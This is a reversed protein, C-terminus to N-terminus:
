AAEQSSRRRSLGRQMAVCALEGDKSDNIPYLAACGIIAGDKEIVTFHRIENELLARSRKVLIGKEELPSILSLVGTIDEVRAKRIMEYQDRFIMTGAGDRTFLEKLIAGNEGSSIIHSRLVGADCARFGTRVATYRRESGQSAELYKECKSLSLERILQGGGDVIPGGDNYIILKDAQIRMAVQEALDTYSINFVEGTISYGLPSVLVLNGDDLLEVIQEGDISRIKGTMQYDVGDIIGRPMATIFNGSRVKLKAGHMPSNPLGSSFQAELMIRAEGIAQLIKPLQEKPTVRVDDHIESSMKTQALQMEIQSRAGHVIVLRIQLSQLLALDGVVGEIPQSALSAGSLMVVFTKGRHKNIYPSAHRFWSIYQDNEEMLNNSQETM